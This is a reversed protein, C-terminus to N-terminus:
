ATQLHASSLAAQTFHLTDEIIHIDEQLTIDLLARTTVAM